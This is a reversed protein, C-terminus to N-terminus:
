DPRKFSGILTLEKIPTHSAILFHSRDRTKLHSTLGENLPHGVPVLYFASSRAPDFKQDNSQVNIVYTTLVSIKFAILGYNYFYLVREAM